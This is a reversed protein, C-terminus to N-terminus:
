QTVMGERVPVGARELLRDAVRLEVDEPNREAWQEWHITDIRGCSITDGFEGACFYYVRRINFLSDFAVTRILRFRRKCEACFWGIERVSVATDIAIRDAGKFRDRMYNVLEVKTMRRLRKTM